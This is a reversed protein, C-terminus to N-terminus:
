GEDDEELLEEVEPPEAELLESIREAALSVATDVDRQGSIAAHFMEQIQNSIEPYHPGYARPRAVQLQETFVALVPDDKFYPDEAHDARSPLREEKMYEMFVDEEVLRQVVTWAAAPDEADATVAYNEGGLISAEGAPGEPLTVVNWNMDAAEERLRGVQWSGNVMMAAREAIFQEKVDEQIWGLIGESMHGGQVLEVWLSLAERGQPTDLTDLDAGAQWLFPLFQFTGEESRVGSVALGHRGNGATAAAVSRLDDWSTPPEVGAETLADQNYFLALCNSGHPVGFRRGQYETSAWPGDYYQNGEGWADVLDGIDALFGLAAFAQHDPNDILIIDPLEGAAGASLLTRKFDAFPISRRNITVNPNEDTYVSVMDSMVQDFPGVAHYDWWDLTLTAEKETDDTDEACAASGLVSLGVLTLGQQKLFSRRSIRRHM